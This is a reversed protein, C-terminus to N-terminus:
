QETKFRYITVSHFREGPRLVTSPFNPHNPSDPFHQTELCLAERFKFAGGVGQMSGDLFNGTYFQVGPQDTYVELVRGTNPEEVKVVWEKAGAPSNLVFNHDYGKGLKLQENDDNIRSGIVNGHRFDFPTGDVAQVVGTPILGSDIPTFHDAHITLRHKLVSGSGAGALNFYTHNALNLVTPKDTTASYEIKLGNKAEVTYRVTVNLSGPFGMEGDPSLYHLELTAAQPTSVDQADWIRKNFGITGGHLANAGDNVPIQYLQGDLQFRGKAIRNAYRGILAGFYSTTAQYPALSDFGLVVEGFAGNRDPAKVSTVAGGYTTVKVEMGAANRLTYLSIPKGDAEGFPRQEIRPAAGLSVAVTLVALSIAKKM